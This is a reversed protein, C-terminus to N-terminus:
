PLPCFHFFILWTSIHHIYVCAVHDRTRIDSDVAQSVRIAALKCIENSEM